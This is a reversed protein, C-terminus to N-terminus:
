YGDNLRLLYFSLRFLTPHPCSRSDLIYWLLPMEVYNILSSEFSTILIIGYISFCNCFRILLLLAFLLHIDLCFYYQCYLLTNVFFNSTLDTCHAILCLLFYTYHRACAFILVICQICALAARAIQMRLATSVTLRDADVCLADYSALVISYGPSCLISTKCSTGLSDICILNVLDLSSKLYKM